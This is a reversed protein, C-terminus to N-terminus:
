ARAELGLARWLPRPAADLDHLVDRVKRVSEALRARQAPSGGRLGRPIGHAAIVHRPPALMVRAMVALVVPALVALAHRRAPSLRPVRSALFSRAFAIHRAEEAVHIQVIRRLLPHVERGSGLLQRQVHDIPVDGGLVFVFFLEPFRRGLGPIRDRIPGLIAPLGRTSLDPAVPRVRRVFEGFMLAHQAEEVVEHYVYRQEASGTALGPALELLGLKLVREFEVGLRMASAAIHLGLRARREAPLGQYWASAGLPDVGGLEWRPDRPDIASEPADWDIDVFAGHGKEVSLRSLKAALAAHDHTM